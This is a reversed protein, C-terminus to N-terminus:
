FGRWLCCSRTARSDSTGVRRVGMSALLGVKFTLLFPDQRLGPVPTESCPRSSSVAAKGPGEQGETDQLVLGATAPRHLQLQAPRDASPCNDLSPGRYGASRASDGRGPAPGQRGREGAAGGSGGTQASAGAEPAGDSAGPLLQWGSGPPLDPGRRAPGEDCGSGGEGDGEEEPGGLPLPPPLPLVGASWLDELVVRARRALPM